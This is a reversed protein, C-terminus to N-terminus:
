SNQAAALRRAQPGYALCAEISGATPFRNLMHDIDDAGNSFIKNQNGIQILNFGFM